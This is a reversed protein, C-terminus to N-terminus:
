DLIDLLAFIFTINNGNMLYLLQVLCLVLRDTATDWTEKGLLHSSIIFPQIILLNFLILSILLGFVFHDGGFQQQLRIMQELEVVERAAEEARAVAEDAKQKVREAKEKGIALEEAM